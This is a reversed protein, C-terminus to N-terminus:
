ETSPAQGADESQGYRLLFGAEVLGELLEYVEAQLSAPADAYEERLAGVVAVPDAHELVLDWVRGGTVSLAHRRGTRLDVLLTQGDDAVYGIDERRVFRSSAEALSTAILSHDALEALFAIVSGEVAAAGDSAIPALMAAIEAASRGGDIARWIAAATGALLRLHQGDYLLVDGDVDIEDVAPNRRPRLDPSLRGM